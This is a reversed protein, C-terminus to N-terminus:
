QAGIARLERQLSMADLMDVPLSLLLEIRRRMIVAVDFFQKAKLTDPGEYAAPDAVGWHASIPQGPWVPCVEGAASDCVTIVFDLTPSGPQAFEDWSKSRFENPPVDMAGLAQLAMPHVAGTPRSGASYGIFRGQGLKRILGEAIISRASNGTCVFLINYPRSHM